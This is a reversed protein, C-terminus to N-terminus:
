ISNRDLRYGLTELDLSLMDATRANSEAFTAGVRDRIASRWRADLRAHLSDPVFRDFFGFVKHRARLTFSNQPKLADPRIVYNSRRYLANTLARSAVNARKGTPLQPPEIDLFGSIRATFDQPERALLELPLALVRDQGFVERYMAILRDFHFFDLRCIGCFGPPDDPTGLFERLTERGGIRLYEGYLSYILAEQERFILLIRANGFTARLREAVYPAYYSGQWPRSSLAEHSM